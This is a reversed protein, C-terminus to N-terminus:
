LVYIAFQSRFKNSVRITAEVSGARDLAPLQKAQESPVEGARNNKLGIDFLVQCLDSLVVLVWEM